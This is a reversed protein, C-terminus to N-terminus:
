KENYAISFGLPNNKYEVVLPHVYYIVYWAMWLKIDSVYKKQLSCCCIAANKTVFWKNRLVKQQDFM